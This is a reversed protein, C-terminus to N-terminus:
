GTDQLRHYNTVICTVYYDEGEKSHSLYQEGGYIQDVVENHDLDYFIMFPMPLDVLKHTNEDWVTCRSYEGTYHFDDISQRDISSFGDSKFILINRDGIRVLDPPSCPNFIKRKDADEFSERSMTKLWEIVIRSKTGKSISWSNDIEGDKFSICEIKASQSELDGRFLFSSGDRAQFFIKDGWKFVIPDFM